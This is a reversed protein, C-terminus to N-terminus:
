ALAARLKRVSIPKRFTKVPALGRAAGQMRVSRANLPNYGTVILLKSQCGQEILWEVIDSGSLQPMVMDLVITDPLVRSYTEKFQGPDTLATVEYGMDEGVVKVFDGFDPEDDMVLLRKM